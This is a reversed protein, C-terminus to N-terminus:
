STEREGKIRYHLRRIDLEIGDLSTRVHVEPRILSLQKTVDFRRVYKPHCGVIITQCRAACVGLEYLAIPCVTEPSFWFVVFDAAKLYKYEWSIQSDSILLDTVDWVKRRPNFLILDDDMGLSLEVLLENQWNATNTIGGALFGVLSSRPVQYEDPSTIVIM